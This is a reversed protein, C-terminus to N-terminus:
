KKPVFKMVMDTEQQPQLELADETLKLVNITDKKGKDDTTMLTKGDDSLTWSAENKIENEGDKIINTVKGDAKFDFIMNGKIKAKNEEMSKKMKEQEEKPMKAIMASADMDDIVWTKALLEKPEAKPADETKVAETGETKTDGEKKEGCSAMMMAAAFALMLHKFKM